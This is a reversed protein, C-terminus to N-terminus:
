DGEDTESQDFLIAPRDTQCFLGFGRQTSLAEQSMLFMQKNIEGCTKTHSPTQWTSQRVSVREEEDEAQTLAASSPQVPRHPQGLVTLNDTSSLM